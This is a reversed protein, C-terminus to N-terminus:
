DCIMGDHLNRTHPPCAFASRYKYPSGCYRNYQSRQPFAPATFARQGCQYHPHLASSGSAHKNVPAIYLAEFVTRQHLINSQQRCIAVDKTARDTLVKQYRIGFRSGTLHFRRQTLRLQQRKNFFELFTQICIHAFFARQKGAPLFLPQRQRAHQQSVIGHHYEVFGRRIDVTFALLHYPPRNTLQFTFLGDDNNRMPKGIDPVGVTDINHIAAGDCLHPVCSSNSAICPM